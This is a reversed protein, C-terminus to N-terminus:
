GITYDPSLVTRNVCGREGEQLAAQRLVVRPGALVSDVCGSTPKAIPATPLSIAVSIPREDLPRRAPRNTYAPLSSENPPPTPPGGM